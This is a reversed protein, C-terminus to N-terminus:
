VPGGDTITWNSTGTLVSRATAPAGASYQADGFHVNINNPEAQAEWGILVSDYFATTLSNSSSFMNGMDDVGTIDVNGLGTVETLNECSNFMLQWRIGTEGMTVGTMNVSTLDNCDNFMRWFDDSNTFAKGSLDCTVLGCQAFSETMRSANSFDASGLNNITTLDRCNFFIRYGDTTNYGTSPLTITTLSTCSQFMSQANAVSLMTFNSIDVTLLSPCSAFMSSFNTGSSTDWTSVDVSVLSSCQSFVSSFITGSSTDMFTLDISTLSDCNVFMEGFNGCTSTDIQNFNNITTLFPCDNFLRNLSSARFGVPPFTVATMKRCSRFLSSVNTNIAVGQAWSSLDVSTIEYCNEFMASINNNNPMIWTSTNVQTLVRCDDFMRSTNTANNMNWASLDVNQALFCGNMFNAFNSCSSVDWNQIGTFDQLKECGNFVSSLNTVNSTDWTELGTIKGLERCQTFFSNFNSTVLPFSWNTVNISTMTNCGFFFERINVCNTLNPVDGTKATVQLNACGRFARESTSAWTWETGWQKVEILKLKDGGVTANQNNFAGVYSNSVIKIDYEGAGSPFTIDVSGSVGLTSTGDYYLDYTGSTHLVPMRYQDNATAGTNDTKVRIVFSSLPREGTISWGKAILNDYATAGALDNCEESNNIYNLTGGTLGFEDLQILVKCIENSKLLNGSIDLVALNPFRSIDIATLNVSSFDLGTINNFYGVDSDIMNILYPPTGTFTRGVVNTFESTGDGYDWEVTGASITVTGSFAGNDKKVAFDPTIKFFTM